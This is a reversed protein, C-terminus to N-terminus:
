RDGSRELSTGPTSEGFWRARNFYMLSMFVALSVLLVSEVLNPKEFEFQARGLAESAAPFAAALLAATAVLLTGWAIRRLILVGGASTLIGLILYTTLAGTWHRSWVAPDTATGAILEAMNETRSLGVSSAVVVLLGLLLAFVGLVVRQM